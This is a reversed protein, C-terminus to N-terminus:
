KATENFGGRLAIYKFANGSTKCGISKTTARVAPLNKLRLLRPCIVRGDRILHSSGCALAETIRELDADSYLKERWAIQAAKSLVLRDPRAQCFLSEQLWHDEVGFTLYLLEEKWAARGALDPAGSGCDPQALRGGWLRVSLPLRLDM